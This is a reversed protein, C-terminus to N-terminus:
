QEDPPIGEKEQLKFKVNQIADSPVVDLTITRGSIAIVFIHMDLDLVLELTSTNTINCSYLTCGNGIRNGAFLLIQQNCPFGEKDQIKAKVTQITDSAEVELTITKGTQIRINVKMICRLLLVAEKAINYNALTCGDNLIREAFMLCQEDPSIGEKSWIKAKVSDITDLANVELSITNDAPTIVFIQMSVLELVLHLVHETQIIYAALTCQDELPTGTYLLIQQDLPIDEKAQIM